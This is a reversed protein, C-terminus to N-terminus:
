RDIVDDGLVVKGVHSACVSIAGLIDHTPNENNNDESNNNDNNNNNNSSKNNKQSDDNKRNYSM